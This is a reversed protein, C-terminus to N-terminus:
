FYNDVYETMDKLRKELEQRKIEMVEDDADAPVHVPEGYMVAIKSFPYPIVLRDWTNLVKKWSANYTMPIIPMGTLKAIKVAGDQAEFAPGRSGDAILVVSNGDKVIRVLNFLAAAGKKFTSGWVISFGYLKLLNGIIEGDKSPSVLIHHKNQLRYLYPFYLMRGHWFTYIPNIGQRLLSEEIDRNIVVRRCTLGIVYIFISGFFPILYKYVFQKM